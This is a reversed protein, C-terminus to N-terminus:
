GLCAAVAVTLLHVMGGCMPSAAMDPNCTLVRWKESFLGLWEAHTTHSM